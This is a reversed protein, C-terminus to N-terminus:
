ISEANQIVICLKDPNDDRGNWKKGVGGCLPNWEWYIFWYLTFKFNYKNKTSTSSFLKSLLLIKKEIEM